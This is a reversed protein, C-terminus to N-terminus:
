RVEEWQNRIEDILEKVHYIRDIREANEGSFFLGKEVNGKVAHILAESICYPTTAPDCTKLCNVCRTPAIRGEKKVTGTFETSVVRGPMGVPSQLIMIDEKKANCIVKSFEPSADCEHTAIFRTGIQAGFAGKKQYEALEYGDFVSGAVFVPIREGKKEEYPEIEKIVEELLAGLNKSEDDIEERKFGLHGGAGRGELVIFDAFRDYRRKWNQLIVKAAKGGSVIPALLVDCDGAIGPLHLPLGAGSIIADIGEELATKVMEEYQVTAVMCNIALLGRGESLNRAKRIEEKLAERNCSLSDRYFGEKRYGVQVTSIVGMCGEKAVHGALNGLSVGVGMGGQILPFDLAKSGIKYQKMVFDKGHRKM